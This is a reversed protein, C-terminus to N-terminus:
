CVIGTDGAGPSGTLTPVTATTTSGVYASITTAQGALAGSTFVIVRGNYFSNVSSPAAGDITSFVVATPTSASGVVLKLIAKSHAGLKEGFSGVTAHGSVVDDWASAAAPGLRAGFSGATTHSAVVDDWVSATAASVVQRVLDTPDAGTGTIHIALDGLTDTHGTTLALKYWGTGLDTVTPTISAFAAGDKSATITLTLGAKGSVHDASDTMFVAVNRATSQYLVM